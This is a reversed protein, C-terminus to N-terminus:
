SVYVREPSIILTVPHHQTFNIQFSACPFRPQTDAQMGVPINGSYNAQSLRSLPHKQSIAASLNSPVHVFWQNNQDILCNRAAPALRVSFVSDIIVSLHVDKSKMRNSCNYERSFVKSLVCCFYTGQFRLFQLSNNRDYEHLFWGTVNCNDSTYIRSVDLICYKM